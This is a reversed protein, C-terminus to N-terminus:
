AVLPGLAPTIGRETALSMVRPAGEPARLQAVESPSILRETVCAIFWGDVEIVAIPTHREMAAVFALRDAVALDGSTAIVEAVVITEESSMLGYRRELTGLTTGVLPHSVPVAGVSDAAETAANARRTRRFRDMSIATTTGM